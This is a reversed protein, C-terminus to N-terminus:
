YKFNNELLNRDVAAYKQDLPTKQQLQWLRIYTIFLSFVQLTADMVGVTGGFLGGRRVGQNLSETLLIRLLRWGSIKPHGSELRLEADIKSWELSKLVIQDVDRHTLHLLQHQLYGLQGRFEGYEHVRGVWGKFDDRKFLRIMWDNRYPGYSVETGFIINKRSIAYASKETSNVTEQIEERLPALVREDADIYVVWDGSAKEMARNRLTSFDSGGFTVVKDTYKNVIELTGDTSGNDAVIIEDAWRVSELCAKIRQEENKSIVIVSIM